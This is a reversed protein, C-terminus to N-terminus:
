IKNKVEKNPDTSLESDQASFAQNELMAADKCTTFSCHLASFWAKEALITSNDVSGLLMPYFGINTGYKFKLGM